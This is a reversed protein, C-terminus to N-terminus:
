ITYVVRKLLYTIVCINEVQLHVLKSNQEKTFSLLALSIAKLELVNIHKTM